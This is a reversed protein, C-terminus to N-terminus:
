HQLGSWTFWFSLSYVSVFGLCSSVFGFGLGPFSDLTIHLVFCFICLLLTTAVKELQHVLYIKGYIKRIRVSFSIMIMKLAWTFCM